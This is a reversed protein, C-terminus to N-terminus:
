SRWWEFTLWVPIGLLFWWGFVMHLMAVTMAVIFIFMYWNFEMGVGLNSAQWSKM